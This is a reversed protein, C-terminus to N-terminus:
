PRLPAVPIAAAAEATLPRALRPTKRLPKVQRAVSEWLQREEDSLSRRRRVGASLDPIEPPRRKMPQTISAPAECPARASGKAAGGAASDVGRGGDSSKG